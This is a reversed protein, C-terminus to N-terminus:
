VFQQVSVAHPVDAAGTAVYQALRQVEADFAIARADVNALSKELTAQRNARAGAGRDAFVPLPEADVRITGYIRHHLARHLLGGSGSIVRSIEPARNLEAMERPDDVLVVDLLLPIRIRRAM